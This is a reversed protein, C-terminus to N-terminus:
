SGLSPIPLAGRHELRRPIGHFAEIEAGHHRRPPGRQRERGHVRADQTMSTQAYRCASACGGGGTRATSPCAPGPRDPPAGERRRATWPPVAECAHLRRVGGVVYPASQRPRCRSPAAQQGSRHARDAARLRPRAVQHRLARSSTACSWCSSRLYLFSFAVTASGGLGRASPARCSQQRGEPATQISSRSNM